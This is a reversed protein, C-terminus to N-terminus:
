ELDTSLQYRIIRGNGKDAVFVTRRFYCVGSPDVFEDARFQVYGAKAYLEGPAKVWPGAEAAGGMAAMEALDEESLASADNTVVDFAM